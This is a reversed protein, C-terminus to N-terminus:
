IWVVGLPHSQGRVSNNILNNITKNIKVFKKGEEGQQLNLVRPLLALLLLPLLSSGAQRGLM